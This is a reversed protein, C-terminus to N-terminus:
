ELENRQGIFRDVVAVLALVFWLYQMRRGTFTDVPMHLMYVVIASLLGTPILSLSSNSTRTSSSFAHWVGAILLWVFSVLGFIGLEVWTALYANHISLRRIGVLEPPLYDRDELIFVQNNAGIGDFLHERIVNIALEATWLRSEASRNDDSTFREIILGSFVVGLVLVAGFLILVSRRAIQRRLIQWGIIMLAVFLTIWGARSKTFILAIIGAVTAFFAIRTNIYKRNSLFSPIVIALSTSLYTAALNPAGLTGGFRSSAGTIGGATVSKLTPMPIDFGCCWQLSIISGEILLCIALTTLVLRIDSWSNLHNVLYFYMLLFQLILFIQFITILVDTAQFVSILTFFFFIIVPISIGKHFYVKPNTPKLVLWRLYGVLLVFTMLSIIFGSPGASHGPRNTLAIDIGLPIDIVLVILLLKRIDNIVLVASAVLIAAILMGSWPSGMKRSVLLISGILFGASAATIIEIKGRNSDAHFWAIVRHPILFRDHLLLQTIKRLTKTWVLKEYRKGDM